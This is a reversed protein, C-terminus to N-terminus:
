PIRCITFPRTALNLSESVNFLLPSTSRYLSHARALESRRRESRRDILHECDGSPRERGPTGAHWFVAMVTALAGTVESDDADHGSGELGM